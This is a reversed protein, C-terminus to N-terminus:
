VSPVTPGQPGTRKQELHREVEAALGDLETRGSPTSWCHLYTGGLSNGTSRTAPLRSTRAVAQGSSSIEGTDADIAPPAAEANDRGRAAKRRRGKSQKLRYSDGKM